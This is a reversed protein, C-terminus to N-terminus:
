LQGALCTFLHAWPQNTMAKAQFPEPGPNFSRVGFRAVSMIHRLHKKKLPGRPLTCASFIRMSSYGEAGRLKICQMRWDMASKMTHAGHGVNAKKAM